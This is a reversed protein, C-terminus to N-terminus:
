VHARGIQELDYGRAKILEYTKASNGDAILQGMTTESSGSEEDTAANSSLNQDPFTQQPCVEYAFVAQVIGLLLYTLLLKGTM